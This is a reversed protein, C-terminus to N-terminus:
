APSDHGPKMKIVLKEYPVQKISKYRGYKAYMPLSVALTERVNRGDNKRDSFTFMPAMSLISTPRMKFFKANRTDMIEVLM